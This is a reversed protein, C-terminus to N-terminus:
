IVFSLKYKVFSTTYISVATKGTKNFKNSPVCSPKWGINDPYQVSSNCDRIEMKVFDFKPSSYVGQLSINYDERDLLLVFRIGLAFFTMWAM